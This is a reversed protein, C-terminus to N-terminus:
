WSLFRGLQWFYISAPIVLFLGIIGFNIGTVAQWNPILDFSWYGLWASAAITLIFSATTASVWGNTYKTRLLRPMIRSLWVSGISGLTVHALTAMIAAPSQVWNKHLVRELPGVFLAHFAVLVAVSVLLDFIGSGSTVTVPAVEEGERRSTKGLKLWGAV